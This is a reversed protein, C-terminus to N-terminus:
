KMYRLMILHLLTDHISKLKTEKNDGSPPFTRIMLFGRAENIFSVLLKIM